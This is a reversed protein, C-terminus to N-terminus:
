SFVNIRFNIFLKITQVFFGKSETHQQFIKLIDAAAIIHMNIQFYAGNLHIPNVESFYPSFYLAEDYM